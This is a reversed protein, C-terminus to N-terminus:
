FVYLLLRKLRVHLLSTVYWTVLTLCLLRINRKKLEAISDTIFICTIEYLLFNLSKTEECPIFM